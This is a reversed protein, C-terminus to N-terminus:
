QKGVGPHRRITDSPIYWGPAGASTKCAEWPIGFDTSLVPVAQHVNDYHWPAQQQQLEILGRTEM